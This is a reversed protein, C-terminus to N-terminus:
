VIPHNHFDKYEPDPKDYKLIHARLTCGYLEAHKTKRGALKELQSEAEKRKGLGLKAWGIQYIMLDHADDEAYDEKKMEQCLKLAQQYKGMENLLNIRNWVVSDHDSDLKALKENLQWAKQYEGWHSHIRIMVDLADVNDLEKALVDKLIKEAQVPCSCLSHIYALLVKNAVVDRGFDIDKELGDIVACLENPDDVKLQLVYDDDGVEIKKASVDTVLVILLILFILIYRTSM